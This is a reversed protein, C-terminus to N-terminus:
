RNIAKGTLNKSLRYAMLMILKRSAEHVALEQESPPGHVRLRATESIAGAGYTPMMSHCSTMIAEDISVIYILRAM